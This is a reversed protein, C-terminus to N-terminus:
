NEDTDKILKIVKILGTQLTEEYTQFFDRNRVAKLPYRYHIIYEYGLTNSIIMIDINYINRIWQQLECMWLYHKKKEKYSILEINNPFFM